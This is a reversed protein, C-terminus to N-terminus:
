AVGTKRMNRCRLIKRGELKMMKRQAKNTENQDLEARIM